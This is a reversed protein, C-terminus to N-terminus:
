ADCLTEKIHPPMAPMVERSDQCHQLVALQEIFCSSTQQSATLVDANFSGPAPGEGGLYGTNDAREIKCHLRHRLMLSFGGDM